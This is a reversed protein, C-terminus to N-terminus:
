LVIRAVILIALVILLGYGARKSYNELPQGNKDKYVGLCISILDIFPWLGLFGGLTLIQAIGIGTYGTYFRHAGFAGLFFCLLQTTLFSKKEM